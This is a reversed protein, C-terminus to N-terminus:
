ATIIQASRFRQVGGLHGFLNSCRNASRDSVFGPRRGRQFGLQALGASIGIKCGSQRFQIAPDPVGPETALNSGCHLLQETALWGRESFERDIMSRCPQILEPSLLNKISGWISLPKSKASVNIEESLQPSIAPTKKAKEAKTMFPRARRGAWCLMAAICNMLAAANLGTNAVANQPVGAADARRPTAESNM